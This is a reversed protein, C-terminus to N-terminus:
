IQIPAEERARDEARMLWDCEIFRLLAVAGHKTLYDRFDNGHGAFDALECEIGARRLGAEVQASHRLGPEDTDPLLVVRKGKLYEVHEIRWSTASGTTTIAVPKGKSDLLRLKALIDAKKEGEVFLVIDAAIVEPLNYLIRKMGKLGRKYLPGSYGSGAYRLYSASGDEFRLVMYHQDGKEDHYVHRHTVKGRSRPSPKFGIKKAVSSWAEQVDETDLLRMEFTVLKNGKTCERFCQFQGTEINISLSPTDDEHFPCHANQGPSWEAGRPLSKRFYTEFIEPTLGEENFLRRARTDPDIYYVHETPEQDAGKAPMSQSTEPNLIEIVRDRGSGKVRIFGTQELRQESESLTNKSVAKFWHGTLPLENDGTTSVRLALQDYILADTGTWKDPYIASLMSASPVSFYHPWPRSNWDLSFPYNDANLVTFQYGGGPGGEKNAQILNISQLERRAHIIAEKSLGTEKGIAELQASFTPSGSIRSCMWRYLKYSSARSKSTQIDVIKKHATCQVKFTSVRCRHYFLNTIM